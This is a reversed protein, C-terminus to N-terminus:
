KNTTLIKVGAVETSLEGINDYVEDVATMIRIFDCYDLRVSNGDDDVAWDLDFSIGDADSNPKNDAYGYDLVKQAITGNFVQHHSALCTGSVIIVTDEIWEPFYPQTHFRNRLTTDSKHWTKTYHHRTLPNNYESGALEFWEDDPLANNNLDQSVYVIGPESSGYEANSQMLFANGLVQFDYASPRNNVKQRFCVTVYGGFGGLSILSNTNLAEQAKRCMDAHTDGQEYTPMINVFQGMAPCYEIVMLPQEDAPEEGHHPKSCGVCLLVLALASAMLCRFLKRQTITLQEGM